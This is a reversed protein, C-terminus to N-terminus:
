LFFFPVQSGHLGQLDILVSIVRPGARNVRAGQSQWSRPMMFGAGHKGSKSNGAEDHGARIFRVGSEDDVLIGSGSMWHEAIGCVFFNRSALEHCALKWKDGKLSRVDFSGVSVRSDNRWGPRCANRATSDRKLGRKSVTPLPVMCADGAVADASRFFIGKHGESELLDPIFLGAADHAHRPNGCKVQYYPPDHTFTTTAAALDRAVPL